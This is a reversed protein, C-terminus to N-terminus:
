FMIFLSKRSCGYRWRCGCICVLVCIVSYQIFGASLQFSCESYMKFSNYSFTLGFCITHGVASLFEAESYIVEGVV